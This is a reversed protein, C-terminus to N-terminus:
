FYFVTEPFGVVLVELHVFDVKLKLWQEGTVLMELHVFDVKLKKWQEGTM